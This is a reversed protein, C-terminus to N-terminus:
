QKLVYAALAEIEATSLQTFPPMPVEGWKGVSGNRISAQLKAQAENDGKYKLAVDHYAPGVIKKDVAHCALCGNSTLLANVDVTTAGVAPASGAAAAQAPALPKKLDDSLESEKVGGYAVALYAGVLKVEEDSIPAGYLHQMKTMEATWQKLTMAPPQYSVYDASHCTACKQVAIQYGPLTSPRLKATEPPLIITLPAAVASSSIGLCVSFCVGFSAGVAAACRATGILQRLM